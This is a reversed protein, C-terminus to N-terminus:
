AAQVMPVVMIVANMFLGKQYFLLDAVQDKFCLCSEAEHEQDRLTQAASQLADQKRHSHSDGVQQMWNDM